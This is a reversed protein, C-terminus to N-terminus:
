GICRSHSQTCMWVCQCVHQVSQVEENKMDDVYNNAHVNDKYLSNRGRRGKNEKHIVLVSDCM